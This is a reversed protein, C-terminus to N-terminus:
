NLLCIECLEDRQPILMNMYVVTDVPMWLSLLVIMWEKFSDAAKWKIKALNFFAELQNQKRFACWNFGYSNSIAALLDINKVNNYKQQIYDTFHQCM